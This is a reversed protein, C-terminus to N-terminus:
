EGGNQANWQHRDALEGLTGAVAALERLESHMANSERDGAALLDAGAACFGGNRQGCVRCGAAHVEYEVCAAEMRKRQGELAEAASM